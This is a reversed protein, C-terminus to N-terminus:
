VNFEQALQFGSLYASEVRSKTFFDGCIGMQLNTNYMFNMSLQSEEVRAYRWRHSIAKVISSAIKMGVLKEVEDILLEIVTEGQIEIHQESWKPTAQIIWQDKLESHQREPKSSNRAMWAIADTDMQNELCQYADYQWAEYFSRDTDLMLTWCPHMHIGTLFEVIKSMDLACEHSKLSSNKCLHLAQEAPIALIIQDFYECVEQEHSFYHIGWVGEDFSLHKVESLTQVQSSIAFLNGISSMGPVGVYWISEHQHGFVKPQWQVILGQQIGQDVFAQFSDSKATFFQAGHDFTMDDLKRTSCRGSIGRSKEFVKVQYGTDILSKACSLGAIGAGIVAISQKSM